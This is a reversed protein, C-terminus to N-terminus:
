EYGEGLLGQLKLFDPTWLGTVQTRSDNLVAANGHYYTLMARFEGSGMGADGLIRDHQLRPELRLHDRQLGDVWRFLDLSQPIRAATQGTLDLLREAAFHRRSGDTVSNGTLWHTPDDDHDSRV